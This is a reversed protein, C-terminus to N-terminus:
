VLGLLLPFSLAGIMWAGANFLLPSIKNNICFNVVTEAIDDVNTKETCGPIELGISVKKVWTDVPFLCVLQEKNKPSLKYIFCLDRLYLSAIKPGVGFISQLKSHIEQTREVKIGDRSYVSLNNNSINKIIDLSQVVMKRDIHNNVGADALLSSLEDSSIELIHAKGVQRIVSMACDRFRNSIKDRRGRYFSKSYWFDLSAFWDTSLLEAPWDDIHMVERQYKTGYVEAISRSKEIANSIDM